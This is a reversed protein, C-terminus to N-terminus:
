LGDDRLTPASTAYKKSDFAMTATFHSQLKVLDAVYDAQPMFPEFFRIAKQSYDIAVPVIPVQAALAINHFGRKWEVVRQRTGEPTIALVLQERRSFEKALQGAVDGARKRDIGIGGLYRGLPGWPGQLATHKVLWSARIQLAFYAFIGVIFDWNSTHPAIAFICKPINPPSGQVRWGLITMGFLGLARRWPSRYQPVRNPLKAVRSM